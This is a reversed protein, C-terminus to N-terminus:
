GDILGEMRAMAEAIAGIFEYAEKRVQAFERRTFKRDAFGDTVARHFDGGEVGIACILEILAQDSVNKLNPLPFCVEGLTHAFAYLIRHDGTISSVVVADALTPKHHSSENTNAKNYLTGATMGMKAALREVGEPGPYDHVVRYFAEFVDRIPRQAM